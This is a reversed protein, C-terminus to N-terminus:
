ARAKLQDIFARVANLQEAENPEFYPQRKLFLSPIGREDLLKKQDPYEWGLTDDWEDHLFIVGEVRAHEALQVFREDAKSQPYERPSPIDFCYHRALATWPDSREHINTAYTRDGWLHDHAVVSAGAREILATFRADSQPSGKLLIRPGPNLPSAPEAILADLVQMYDDRRMFSASAIVALADVGTLAPGNSQWLRSARQLLLRKENARAIATSLWEATVPRGGITQLHEALAHLRGITYRLTTSSPTQLLDFLYHPPIPARPEWKPIELLFYYLQLYVESNRPVVILDVFDFRGELLAGFISRVEGDMYEEMYREALSSRRTPEGRLRVPFCGAAVILEEPVSNLFYGVVKGGAQRHARAASYPDAYTARLIELASAM